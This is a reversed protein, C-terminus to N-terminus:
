AQDGSEVCRMVVAHYDRHAANFTAVLGELSVRQERDIAFAPPRGPVVDGSERIELGSPISEHALAKVFEAPSRSDAVVLYCPVTVGTQSATATTAAVGLIVMWM